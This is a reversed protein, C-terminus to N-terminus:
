LLATLLCDYDAPESYERAHADHVDACVQRVGCEAGVEVLDQRARALGTDLGDDDGAGRRFIRAAGDGEGIGMGTQERGHADM